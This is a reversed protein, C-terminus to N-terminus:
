KLFKELKKFVEKHIKESFDLAEYFEEMTLSGSEGKQMSNITSDHGGITIRADIADEEERTPDVIFHKGIKYMTLSLPIEKTLSLKEGTYEGWLIKNEAEDYKPIKVDKLAAVAGIGAADFLNGDDNIAYIDVFLTWVKEGEKICLKKLDIFHSERLVRDTVRGIEISNFKPPGNEFRPSSIPRLEASVMLNGEDASDPYPEGVTMKVGVLVETNGIKVRASGDANKAVGREIIVERYDNAKRGDFRKGEGLYQIIRDKIIKPTNM